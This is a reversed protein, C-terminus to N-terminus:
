FPPLPGFGGSTLIVAKFLAGMQKPDILRSIRRLVERGEEESARSLLQGARAELGLRLLWEGLPMPGCACLGLARAHKILAPFDVHASLDVEGPCEFLGAYRHQSVAQVTDGFSPQSYGYDVILGALPAAAARAAFTNLIEGTGPRIELIAGDEIDQSDGRMRDKEGLPSPVGSVAEGKRSLVAAREGEGKPFLPPTLPDEVGKQSLEFGFGGAEFTVMRQRWLRAPEDFIYQRVPLCDFLENAIVITAGPPVQGTENHWFVPCPAGKLADKQAGILNASTEILHVTVSKLFGPLVRLARLADAMLTGRGPGLEILRVEEPQGMLRWCEGAWLGIIEGYIQSIEPATIFDGGRGLPDKNKYYGHEPDYLCAQMYDHLPIPGSAAIRAALKRALPTLAQGPAFSTPMM